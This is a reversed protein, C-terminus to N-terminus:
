APRGLFAGCSRSLFTLVIRLATTIADTDFRRRRGAQNDPRKAVKKLYALLHAAAESIRRKEANLAALEDDIRKLDNLCRNEAQLFALEVEPQREKQRSNAAQLATLEREIRTRDKLRCNEMQMVALEEELLRRYPNVM